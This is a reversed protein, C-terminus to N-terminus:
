KEIKLTGFCPMLAESGRRVMSRVHRDRLFAIRFFIVEFMFFLNKVPDLSLATGSASRKSTAETFGEIQVSQQNLGTNRQARAQLM